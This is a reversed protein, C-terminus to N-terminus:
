DASEREAERKKWWALWKAADPGFSEGTIKELLRLAEDRVYESRDDLLPAIYPTARTVFRKALADIAKARVFEDDDEFLAVLNKKFDNTLRGAAEAAIRRIKADPDDFFLKFLREVDHDGGRALSDYLLKLKQLRSAEDLFDLGEDYLIYHRDAYERYEETGDRGLIKLFDVLDTLFNINKPSFAVARKFDELAGETDPPKSQIKLMARNYHGLAYEPKVAIAKNYDDMANKFAGLKEYCEARNNYLTQDLPTDEVEARKETLDIAKSYDDIANRVFEAAKDKMGNNEFIGAFYLYVVARETYVQVNDQAVLEATAFDELAGNIASKLDVATRSRLYARCLLAPVHDPMKELIYDIDELAGALDNKRIKLQAREWRLELDGPNDDVLKDLDAFVEDMKGMARNVRIKLRRAAISGPAIKVAKGADALALELQNDSPKLTGDKLKGAWIQIYIDGRNVYASLYKDNLKIAKSYQVVAAAFDSKRAFCTGLGNYAYYCKGDIELAKSFRLEAQKLDDCLGLAAGYLYNFLADGANETMRRRYFELVLKGEKAVSLRQYALHAEIHGLDAEAAARYKELAADGDGEKELKKGEAFLEDAEAPFAAPVAVVFVLLFAVTAAIFTGAAGTRFRFTM